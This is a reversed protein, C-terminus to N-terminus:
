VSRVQTVLVGSQAVLFRGPEIEALKVAHGLHRAIQERAANWLGYYHRTDAAPEEGERYPISDAAQRFRRWM